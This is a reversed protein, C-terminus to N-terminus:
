IEEYAALRPVLRITPAVALSMVLKILINTFIIAFVTQLPLQGFFAILSFIISDFVLAITNSALVAKTDSFKRFIISFIETDILESITQAIISALTIRWVPMLINEYAQQFPWTPDPQMKGVLLFLLAAGLNVASALLVIKRASKKGLTKHVFDRLTFTLPYLVTGADVSLNLFPLLAIKTSLINSIVQFSVYLSASIAGLSSQNTNQM